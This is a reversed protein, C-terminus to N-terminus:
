WGIKKLDPPWNSVATKKRRSEPLVDCFFAATKENREEGILILNLAVSPPRKYGDFVIGRRFFIVAHVCGTAQLERRWRLHPLAPCLIVSRSNKKKAEDIARFAFAASHKWPPNVFNMRGWDAHMADLQANIPCPDHDFAFLENLKAYFWTPTSVVQSDNGNLACSFFGKVHKKKGHDYNQLANLKSLNQFDSSAKQMKMKVDFKRRSSEKMVEILPSGPSGPSDPPGPSGPSGPFSDRKKLFAVPWPCPYRHTAFIISEVCAVLPTSYFVSDCPRFCVFVFRAPSAVFDEFSLRSSLFVVDCAAGLHRALSLSFVEEAAYFKARPHDSPLKNKRFLAREEEQQNM